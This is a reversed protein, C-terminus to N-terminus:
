RIKKFHVSASIIKYTTYAAVTIVATMNMSVSKVNVIMLAIPTILAVNLM